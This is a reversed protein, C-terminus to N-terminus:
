ASFFKVKKPVRLLFDAWFNDNCIGDHGLRWADSQSIYNILIFEV